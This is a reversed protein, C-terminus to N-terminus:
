RNRWFRVQPDNNEAKWKAFEQDFDLGDEKMRKRVTEIIRTYGMGCELDARMFNIMDEFENSGPEPMGKLPLIPIQQTVPIPDLHITIMGPLTDLVSPEDPLFKKNALVNLDERIQKLLEDHNKLIHEKPMGKIKQMPNPKHKRTLLSKIEDQMTRVKKKPM